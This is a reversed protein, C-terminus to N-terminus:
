EALHLLKWRVAPVHHNCCDTIQAAHRGSLPLLDDLGFPEFADKRGLLAVDHTAGGPQREGRRLIAPRFLLRLLMLGIGYPDDSLAQRANFCRAIKLCGRRSIKSSPM